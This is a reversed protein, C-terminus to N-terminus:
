RQRWIQIYRKEREKIETELDTYIEERKRNDRDRFRYVTYM